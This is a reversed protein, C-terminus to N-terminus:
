ETVIRQAGLQAGEPNRYNIDVTLACRNIIENVNEDSLEPHVTKTPKGDFDISGAISIKVPQRYYSLNIKSIDFDEKYVQITDRSIISITEEWEFSPKNMEDQLWSNKDKPKINHIFLEKECNNKEALAIASVFHFYDEPLKFDNHNKKESFESLELDEVLLEYLDNIDDTSNKQRIKSSLWKLSEENFYLIFEEIPIRVEDDTDNKNIKLLFRKYAEQITM